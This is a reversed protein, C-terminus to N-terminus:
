LMINRKEGPPRLFFFQRMAAINVGMFALFAGFNLLEAANQYHAANLGCCDIDGM